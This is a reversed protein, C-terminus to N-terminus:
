MKSSNYGFGMPSEMSKIGSFHKVNGLTCHRLKRIKKSIKISYVQNQCIAGLGELCADLEIVQRIPVHNFFAIVNFHPLFKIFWNLDRHFNVDLLMDNKDFHLRLNDLMRNLFIRFQSCMQFHVAFLGIIVPAGEQYMKKSWGM